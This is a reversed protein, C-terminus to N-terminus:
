NLYFRVIKNNEKFEEKYWITLILEYSNLRLYKDIDKNKCEVKLWNEKKSDINKYSQELIPLNLGELNEKLYDITRENVMFYNSGEYSSERYNLVKIKIIDGSKLGNKNTICMTEEEEEEEEESDIKHGELERIRLHLEYKLHELRKIKRKQKIVEQRLEEYLKVKDDNNALKFKNM